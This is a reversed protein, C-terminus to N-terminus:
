HQLIHEILANNEATFPNVFRVGDLIRGDQFDETLFYQAGIRRATAWLIADWFALRHRAVMSLAAPLDEYVTPEVPLAERWLAVADRVELTTMGVKRIAVSSCEILTQLLVVLNGLRAGRLVLERAITCKRDQAPGMAYVLVNTDLTVIM